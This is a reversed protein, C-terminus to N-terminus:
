NTTRFSLGESAQKNYNSPKLIDPHINQLKM